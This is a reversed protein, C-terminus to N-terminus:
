GSVVIQKVLEREKSVSYPCITLYLSHVNCLRWTHWWMNVILSSLNFILQITSQLKGFHKIAHSKQYTKPKVSRWCYFLLLLKHLLTPIFCYIQSNPFTFHGWSQFISSDRKVQYWNMWLIRLRKLSEGTMLSATSIQLSSINSIENSYTLSKVSNARLLNPSVTWLPTRFM